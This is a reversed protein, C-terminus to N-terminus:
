QICRVEMTKYVGYAQDKSPLSNIRSKQLNEAQTDVQLQSAIAKLMNLEWTPLSKDVM